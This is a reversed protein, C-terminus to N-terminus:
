CISTPPRSTYASITNAHLHQPKSVRSMSLSSKNSVVLLIAADDAVSVDDDDDDDIAVVGRHVTRNVAKLESSAASKTAPENNREHNLNTM